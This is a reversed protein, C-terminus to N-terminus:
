SQVVKNWKKNWVTLHGFHFLIFLDLLDMPSTYEKQFVEVNGSLISNKEIVYWKKLSISHLGKSVDFLVVTPPWTSMLPYRHTTLLSGHTRSPSRCVFHRPPSRWLVTINPDVHVGSGEHCVFMIHDWQTRWFALWVQNGHSNTAKRHSVYLRVHIRTGRCRWIDVRVHIHFM